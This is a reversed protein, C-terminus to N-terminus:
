PPSPMLAPRNTYIFFTGKIGFKFLLHDKLAHPRRLEQKCGKLPCISPARRAKRDEVWRNISDWTPPKGYSYFEETDTDTDLHIGELSNILTVSLLAEGYSQFLQMPKWEVHSPEWRELGRDSTTRIMTSGIYIPDNYSPVTIFPLIPACSEDVPFMRLTDFGYVQRDLTFYEAGALLAGIGEDQSPYNFATTNDVNRDM